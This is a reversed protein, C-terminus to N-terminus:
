FINTEKELQLYENVLCTGKLLIWIDVKKEERGEGCTKIIFLSYGLPLCTLLARTLHWETPWPCAYRFM